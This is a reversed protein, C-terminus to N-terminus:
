YVPRNFPGGLFSLSTLLVFLHRILDCLDGLIGVRQKSARLRNEVSASACKHLLAM